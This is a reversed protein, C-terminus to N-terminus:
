ARRPPVASYASGVIVAFLHYKHDAIELGETPYEVDTLIKQVGEDANMYKFRKLHVIFVEPLHYFRVSKAAESHKSCGHCFYQDSSEGTAAVVVQSTYRDLLQSFPM